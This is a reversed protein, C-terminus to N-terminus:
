GTAYVGQWLAEGETRHQNCIRLVEDANYRESPEKRLMKPLIMQFRGYDDLVGSRLKHWEEGNSPLERCTDLQLLTLGLSFIDAPTNREASSLIEPAIYRVDGENVENEMGVKCAQGLDGLKCLGTRSVLINAPKVDLHVVGNSHMHQLAAAVHGIPVWLVSHHLEKLSPQLREITGNPCYEIQAYFYGLDQWANYYEVIFPSWPMSEYIQVEALYRARDSRSRFPSKSRKLAYQQGSRKDTALFVESFRGEGLLDDVSLDVTLDCLASKEEGKERELLMKTVCLSNKRSLRHAFTHTCNSSRPLAALGDGHCPFEYSEDAHPGGWESELLPSETTEESASGTAPSAYFQASLDLPSVGTHNGSGEVDRLVSCPTISYASAATSYQPSGRGSAERIHSAATSCEYRSLPSDGRSCRTSESWAAHHRISLPAVHMVACREPTEEGLAARARSKQGNGQPTVFTNPNNARITRQRM